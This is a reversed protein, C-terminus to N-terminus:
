EAPTERIIEPVGGVESVIPLTGLAMAEVIAYPLPEECISPFILAWAKKHLEAVKSHEVRRLLQINLNSYKGSLRENDQAKITISTQSYSGQRSDKSVLKNLAKITHPFV